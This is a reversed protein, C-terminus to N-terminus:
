IRNVETPGSRLQVTRLTMTVQASGLAADRDRM